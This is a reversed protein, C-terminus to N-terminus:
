NVAYKEFYKIILAENEPKMKVCIFVGTLPSLLTCTRTIASSKSICNEVIRLDFQVGNQLDAQIM